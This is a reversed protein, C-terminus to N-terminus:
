TQVCSATYRMRPLRRRLFTGLHGAPLERTPCGRAQRLVEWGPTSTRQGQKRSDAFTPSCGASMMAPSGAVAYAQMLFPRPNRAARSMGGLDKSSIGTTKLGPFRRQRSDAESPLPHLKWQVPFPLIAAQKLSHSDLRQVGVSFVVGVVVGSVAYGVFLCRSCVGSAPAHNRLPNNHEDLVPSALGHLSRETGNGHRRVDAIHFIRASRVPLQLLGMGGADYVSGPVQRM